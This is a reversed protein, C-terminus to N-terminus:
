KRFNGVEGHKKGGIFGSMHKMIVEPKSTMQTMADIDFRLGNVDIGNGFMNQQPRNGRVCEGVGRFKSDSVQMLLYNVTFCHAEWCKLTFNFHFGAYRKTVPFIQLGCVSLM